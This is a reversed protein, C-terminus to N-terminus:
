MTKNLFRINLHQFLIACMRSASAKPNVHILVSNIVHALNKERKAKAHKLDTKPDMCVRQFVLVMLQFFGNSIFILSMTCNLCM